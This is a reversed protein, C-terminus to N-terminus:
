FIHIFIITTSRKTMSPGGRPIVGEGRGKGAGRQADCRRGGGRGQGERPIM